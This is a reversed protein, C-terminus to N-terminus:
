LQFVVGCYGLREATLPSVQYTLIQWVDSGDGLMNLFGMRQADGPGTPLYVGAKDTLPAFVSPAGYAYYPNPIKGAGTPAANLAQM